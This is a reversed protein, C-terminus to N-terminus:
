ASVCSRSSRVTFASSRILVFIVSIALMELFASAFMFAIIEESSVVGCFMATVRDGAVMAMNVYNMSFAWNETPKQLKEKSTSQLQAKRTKPARGNRHTKQGNRDTCQSSVTQAQLRTLCYVYLKPASILIEYYM